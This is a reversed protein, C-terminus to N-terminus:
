ARPQLCTSFRQAVWPDVKIKKKLDRSLFNKKLEETISSAAMMLLVFFGFKLFLIIVSGSIRFVALRFFMYITISSLINHHWGPCLCSATFVSIKKMDVLTNNSEWESHEPAPATIDVTLM